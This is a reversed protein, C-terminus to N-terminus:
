PGWGVVVVAFREDSGLVAIRGAVLTKAIKEGRSGSAAM